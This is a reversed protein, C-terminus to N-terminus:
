RPLREGREIDDFTACTLGLISRIFAIRRFLRDIRKRVTEMERLAFSEPSGNVWRRFLHDFHLVLVFAGLHGTWLRWQRRLSLLNLLSAPSSSRVSMDM